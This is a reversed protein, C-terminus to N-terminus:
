YYPYYYRRARMEEMKKKESARKVSKAVVCTVAVLAIIPLVKRATEVIKEQTQPDIDYADLIGKQRSAERAEELAKQLKRKYVANGILRFIVAIVIVAGIAIGAYIFHKWEIAVSPRGEAWIVPVKVIYGLWKLVAVAGCALLGVIVGIYGILNSLVIWGNSRKIRM